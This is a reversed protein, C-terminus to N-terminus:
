VAKQDSTAHHMWGLFSLYASFMTTLLQLFPSIIVMLLIWAIFSPRPEFLIMPIGTQALDKSPDFLYTAFPGWIILMGLLSVSATIVAYTLVKRFVVRIENDKKTVSQVLFWGTFFGFLICFIPVGMGMGICITDVVLFLIFMWVPRLDFLKSM